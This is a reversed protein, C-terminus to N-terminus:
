TCASSPLVHRYQKASQTWVPGDAIYANKYRTYRDSLAGRVATQGRVSEVVAHIADSSEAGDGKDSLLSAHTARPLM